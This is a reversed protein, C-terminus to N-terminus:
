EEASLEQDIDALEEDIGSFSTANLDTEIDEIADSDSQEELKQTMVDDEEAPSIVEREQAQQNQSRQQAFRGSIVGGVVAVLGLLIVLALIVFIKKGGRKQAPTVMPTEPSPGGAAQMAPPSSQPVQEAPQAAPVQQDPTPTQQDDAM